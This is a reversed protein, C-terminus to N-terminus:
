RNDVNMLVWQLGIITKADSFEPIKESLESIPIKVLQIDEHEGPKGGGESTKNKESVEKYFLFMRETSSGPSTYFTNIHTPNSIEYGLEEMIERVICESPEEDKDLSGAPIELLWGKDHKCSPYRFQNTFLISQTEVEFLVIAVSDGREFALRRTKIEGGKFTDYSVIAQLMKFHDDFVIKEDDISYKM